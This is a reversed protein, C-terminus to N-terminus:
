LKFFYKLGGGINLSRPREDSALFTWSNTSSLTVFSRSDSSTWVKVDAGFNLGLDMTTEYEDAFDRYNQRVLGGHFGLGVYPTWPSYQLDIFNWNLNLELDYLGIKPRDVSFELGDDLNAKTYRFGLNMLLHGNRMQGINFGFYYGPDYVDEADVEIPQDLQDVFPIGAINDYTGLPSAAGGYGEVVSWRAARRQIGFASSGVTLVLILFVAIGKFQRRM